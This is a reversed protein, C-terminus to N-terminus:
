EVVLTTFYVNRVADAEGGNVEKIRQPGLRRLLVRNVNTTMAKRLKDVGAPTTIDEVKFALVTQRMTDEIEPQVAGVLAGLASGSLTLNVGIQM